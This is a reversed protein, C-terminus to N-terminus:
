RKGGTRKALKDWRKNARRAARDYEFDTMATLVEIASRLEPCGNGTETGCMVNTGGYKCDCHKAPKSPDLTYACVHGRVKELVDVVSTRKGFNM